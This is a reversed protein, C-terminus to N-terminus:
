SSVSAAVLRTSNALLCFLPVVVAGGGGGGDVRVVVITGVVVDGALVTVLVEVARGGTTGEVDVLL